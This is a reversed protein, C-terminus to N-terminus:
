ENTDRMQPAPGLGIQRTRTLPNKEEPPLPVAEPQVLARAAAPKNAAELVAAVLRDQRKILNAIVGSLGAVAATQIAVVVVLGTM